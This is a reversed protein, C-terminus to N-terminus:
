IMTPDLSKDKALRVMKERFEPGGEDVLDSFYGGSQLLDIPAGEEKKVGNDLVLIKDYQVVTVLRHAITVVTTDGMDHKVIRQIVSDTKQDINATAEDMLLIKPKKILSRAICILQRQGVSLNAGGADVVFGLKDEDTIEEDKLVVQSEERKEKMPKEVDDKALTKLDGKNKTEESKSKEKDNKEKSKIIDEVRITDLIQVSRAAGLIEETSFQNFPDINFKLTGQILFPDQPIITIQRRLEHLGLQHIKVGDIEIYGDVDVEPDGAEQKEILRTLSLLLTSKGSGTRGVIGVKKGAPIEFSLNKLVLPLGPRYRLNLNNLEITGKPPWNEPAKPEEWQLQSVSCV